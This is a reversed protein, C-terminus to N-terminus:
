HCAGKLILGFINGGPISGGLSGWVSNIVDCESDGGTDFYIHMTSRLGHDGTDAVINIDTPLNIKLANVGNGDFKGCDKDEKNLKQLTNTYAEKVADRDGNTYEAEINMSFAKNPGLGKSDCGDGPFMIDFSGECSVDKCLDDFAKDFQDWLLKRSDDEKPYCKEYNGKGCSDPDWFAGVWQKTGYRSHFTLYTSISLM